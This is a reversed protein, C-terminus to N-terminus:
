QEDEGDTNSPLMGFVYGAPVNQFIPVNSIDNGEVNTQAVKLPSYDGEMKNLEAIASIRAQPNAVEVFKITVFKSQNRDWKAESYPIEIQGLILKTLYEKREEATMIAKKRAEIAAQKDVEALQIKIAEQKAIHEQKAIKLLRDFSRPSIKEKQWKKGVKALISNRQEGNELCSVVFDIIVQRNTKASNL